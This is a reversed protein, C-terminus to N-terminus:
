KIYNNIISQSNSGNNALSKGVAEAMMETATKTQTNGGTPKPTGKLLEKEMQAKALTERNSLIQGFTDLNVTGDANFLKEADEGVVGFEALKNKRQMSLLQTELESVRSNAKETEKKALEIDTLNKNNIEELQAELEDTRLAKGKYRESIAKEKNVEGNVQNLYNTVQEDTPETIGFGILNQKAQERSMYLGKKAVSKLTPQKWKRRWKVCPQKIKQIYFLRM